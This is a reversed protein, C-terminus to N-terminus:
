ASPGAVSGDRRMSACLVARYVQEDVRVARQAVAARHRGVGGGHGTPGGAALPSDPPILLHLSGCCPLTAGRPRRYRPWQPAPLSGAVRREPMALQWQQFAAKLADRDIGLQRAAQRLGVEGASSTPRSPWSGASGTPARSPSATAACGAASPRCPAASSGYDNDLGGAAKVALELCQDRVQCGACITKAEGAKTQEGPKPFFREPDQDHCAARDLWSTRPWSRSRSPRWTQRAQRRHSCGVLPRPGSSVKRSVRDTPATV